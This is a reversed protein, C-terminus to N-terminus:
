SSKRIFTLAEQINRELMSEDMENFAQQMEDKLFHEYALGKVDIDFDDWGSEFLIQKLKIM